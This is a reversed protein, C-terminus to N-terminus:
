SSEVRRWRGLPKWCLHMADRERLIWCLSMPICDEAALTQAAGLLMQVCFRANQINNRQANEKANEVAEKVIEVGIVERVLHAM